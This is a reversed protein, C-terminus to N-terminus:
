GGREGQGGKSARGARNKKRKRGEQNGRGAADARATSANLDKPRHAQQTITAANSRPLDKMQRHSISIIQKTLPVLTLLLYHSVPPPNDTRALAASQGVGILRRDM